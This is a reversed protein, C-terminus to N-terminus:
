EEEEDEGEEEEDSGFFKLYIHAAIYFPILGIAIGLMEAVLALRLIEVM